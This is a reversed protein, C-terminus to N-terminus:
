LITLIVSIILFVVSLCASVITLAKGITCLKSPNQTESKYKNLMNESVIIVGAGVFFIVIGALPIMSLCMLVTGIISLIFGILAMKENEQPQNESKKTEEIKQEVDCAQENNELSVEM